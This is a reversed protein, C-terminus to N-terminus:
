DQPLKGHKALQNPYIIFYYVIFFASLGIIAVKILNPAGTLRTVFSELFGAVVFIPVLGIALKVGKKAGKQLSHLRSYTGPFLYSNGLIFGAAGAITIASIELTGHIWITLVSSMLLGKQYFYYQFAGLMIGNQFLMFASGFSFFIGMAFTILAVRINNFTISFFMTSQDASKYVGMPDGKEINTDTMNMYNDGMILRAFTGDHATSLAGICCSIFFILFSYALYRRYEYAVAPVEYRWFRSIRSGKERKNKYILGHVRTTLNNLYISIEGGPFHTRAYALDDTLQIYLAGLQDPHRLEKTEVWKEFHEWKKINSKIFAAETM